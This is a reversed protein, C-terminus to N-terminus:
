IGVGSRFGEAMAEKIRRPEVCDGALWIEGVKGDLEELLKKNPMSGAALVLTDTELTKREGERTTVVIGEPTIAEYKVGPFLTVGKSALRKLFQERLTPGIGVAMDLGRRTVTVKRGKEALFEATECGVM